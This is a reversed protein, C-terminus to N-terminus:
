TSGLLKLDRFIKSNTYCAIGTLENNIDPERFTEFNDERIQVKRLLNALVTEDAVELYVLTHNNWDQKPHKLLWQAVTHGAQVGAYQLGLDKRLVVYLKKM